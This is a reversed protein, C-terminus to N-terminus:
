MSQNFMTEHAGVKCNRQQGQLQGFECPLWNPPVCVSLQFGQQDLCLDFLLDRVFGPIRGVQRELDIRLGVQAASPRDICHITPQM